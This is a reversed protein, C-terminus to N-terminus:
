VCESVVNFTSCDPIRYMAYELKDVVLAQNLKCENASLAAYQNKISKTAGLANRTKNCGLRCEVVKHGRFLAIFYLCASVLALLSTCDGPWQALNHTGVVEFVYELSSWFCLVINPLCYNFM